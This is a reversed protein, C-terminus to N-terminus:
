GLVARLTLGLVLACSLWVVGIAGRGALEVARGGKWELVMEAPPIIAAGMLVGALLGGAHAANDIWKYAVIGMVAILAINTLLSKLFGHPMVSERRHAMVALFGFMGMLGGSAGVSLGDPPVWVSAVGGAIATLVFVLPVWGRPARAEMHSGLAGLAIYNFGAHLVSAHLLPASLLRWVEGGRVASADLAAVQLMPEMTFVQVAFTAAITYGIANTFPTPLRVVHAAAIAADVQARVTEPALERAAPIRRAVFAVWPALLVLAIVAFGPSLLLCALAIGGAVLAANRVSRRAADVEAERMADLLWPLDWPAVMRETEPAWVLPPTTGTRTLEVLTERSSAVVDGRRSLFGYGANEPKPREPFAEAWTRPVPPTGADDAQRAESSGIEGDSTSV